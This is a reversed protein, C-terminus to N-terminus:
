IEIKLETALAKRGKPTVLVARTNPLRRLWNEDLMMKLLAAGLSGALHPKRETWDICTRSFNRRQRRLATMDIGHAEFWRNGKDTIAFSRDEQILLKERVLGETLQVGVRGALHDYCTRCSRIPPDEKEEAHRHREPVAAALAEIAYAVEPRDFTYYRHRGQAEVKLLHAKVLKSLHISCNQASCDTAAALESATYARGDLLTWLINARIPNGILQVIYNLM